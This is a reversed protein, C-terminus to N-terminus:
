AGGSYSQGISSFSLRELSARRRCRTSHPWIVRNTVADWRCRAKTRKPRREATGTKAETWETRATAWADVSGAQDM